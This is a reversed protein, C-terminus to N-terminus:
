GKYFFYTLNDLFVLFRFYIDHVEIFKLRWALDNANPNIKVKLRYKSPGELSIKNAHIYPLTTYINTMIDTCEDSNEDSM